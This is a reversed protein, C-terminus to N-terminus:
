RISMPGLPVLQVFGETLRVTDRAVLISGPVAMQEMRAAVHASEGVASYDM